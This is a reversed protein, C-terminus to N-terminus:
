LISEFGTNVDQFPPTPHVYGSIEALKWTGVREYDSGTRVGRERSKKSEGGASDKRMGTSGGCHVWVTEGCGGWIGNM